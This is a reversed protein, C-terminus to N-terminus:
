AIKQSHVYETLRIVNDVPTDPLIGHGLNFIYGKKDTLLSLMQDTRKKVFSFSGLLVAPDLNGQIAKKSGILKVAQDLPIRWDVSIVQCSVNAFDKLFGATNTGFHIMPINEKILSDFVKKTFPLVYEVYDQRGLVGAWSDFLQLAQIGERCQAKLYCIILEALTQMLSKWNETQNYMFSKTKLFDRTPKGEILYSALTFPAASFGILPIKGSLERSLIRITKLLFIIDKEPNLPRLKKIDNLTKVPTKIIPGLNDVLNLDVGIGLLPIMIDAFLIAADVKLKKVPLLTVKAALEPTQCIQLITYKEKLKRYEPLFRGAQRMYWVPIHSSNKRQAAKM